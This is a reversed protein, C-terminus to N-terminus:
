QLTVLVLVTGQKEHLSSMAKGVVAGHARDWDTAKMARGAIDSSTLMDGAEIEGNSTDAQVYVRGSLAVNQGSEMVGEQRLSIGPNIGNAGSVIGAVRRDYARTSRKLRGPHEEDIVVVSGKELVEEKMPFPEALDAGGRVTLTGCGMNGQVYTDGNPQVYFVPPSPDRAIYFADGIYGRSTGVDWQGNATVFEMRSWSNIGGTSQIRESAAVADFVHLNAVPATTGIGVKGTDSITFDYTAPSGTTGPDAATRWMLFAGNTHGMGFRQGSTDAAWAIASANDMDLAGIWGNTTWTPAGNFYKISLHSTPTTTGIGVTGTGDLHILGGPNSGTAAGQSKLDIGNLNGQIRSYTNASEEFTVFPHTGTLRLADSYGSVHLASLPTQTGIGLLGNSDLAMLGLANGGTWFSDTYFRIGGSYGGIVSYPPNALSTFQDRFAITPRTATAEFLGNGNPSKLKLLMPSGSSSFLDLSAAPTSTGIGVNGTNYYTSTGNLSWVGAGGTSALTLTNGSPTISINSGAVLTLIDSIGNVSKVVQGSGIKAATVSADAIQTGSVGGNAIQASGVAGNAIQTSGVAGPAIKASTIVGDAVTAALMSYGVSAIRQDPTLLQSGHTGDNFWVRLRVDFNNFVSASIVTMNSYGIDGLVVSYLGNTVILSVANTPQSGASSTGDNSWYTISGNSNVLAFKFSGTGNFNTNNTNLVVRGQYNIIQPVQAQLASSLLGLIGVGLLITRQMSKGM